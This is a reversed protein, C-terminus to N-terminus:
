SREPSVLLGVEGGTAALLEDAAGHPLDEAGDAGGVDRRALQGPPGLEARQEVSEPVLLVVADQLLESADVDDVGELPPFWSHDHRRQLDAALLLVAFVNQYDVKAIIHDRFVRRPAVANQEPHLLNNM